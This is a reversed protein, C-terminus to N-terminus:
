FNDLLKKMTISDLKSFLMFLIFCLLTLELYKIINTCIYVFLFICILMECVVSLTYFIKNIIELLTELM